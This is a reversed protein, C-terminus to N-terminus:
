KSDATKGEAQAKRLFHCRRRIKKQKFTCIKRPIYPIPFRLEPLPVPFFLPSTVDSPFIRILDLSTFGERFRCAADDRAPRIKHNETFVAPCLFPFLIIVGQLTTQDTHFSCLSIIGAVPFGARVTRLHVKGSVPDIAKMKIRHKSRQQRQFAPHDPLVTQDEVTGIHDIM